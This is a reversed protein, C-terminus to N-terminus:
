KKSYYDLHGDLDVMIRTVGIAMDVEIQESGIQIANKLEECISNLEDQTMEDRNLSSYKMDEVKVLTNIIYDSGVRDGIVAIVNEDEILNLIRLGMDNCDYSPNKGEYITNIVQNTETFIEPKLIKVFNQKANIKNVLVQIPNITVHRM